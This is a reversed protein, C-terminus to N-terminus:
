SHHCINVEKPKFVHLQSLDPEYWSITKPNEKEILKRLGKRIAKFGDSLTYLIHINDGSENLLEQIDNSNGVDVFGFKLKSFMKDSLKVYLATAISKGKEEILIIKDENRDLLSLLKWKPFMRKMGPYNDYIHNTLEIM